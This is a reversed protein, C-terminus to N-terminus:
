LNSQPFWMSWRWRIEREGGGGGGGWRKGNGRPPTNPDLLTNREAKTDKLLASPFPSQHLRRFEFTQFVVPTRMSYVLETFATILANGWQEPTMLVPLRKHKQGPLYVRVRPNRAADYFRHLMDNFISELFDWSYSVGAQQAYAMNVISLFAHGYVDGYIVGYAASLGRLADLFYNWNGTGNRILRARAVPLFHAL